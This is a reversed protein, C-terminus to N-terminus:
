GPTLVGVVAATMLSALTGSVITKTGLSVIESRREPVMAAMGGIMIGLSAFNAAIYDRRSEYKRDRAWNMRTLSYAAHVHLAFAAILGGRMLWLLVTRPLFPTGLTRLWEGYHNIDEAGFYIKLNGAMHALVYGMWVIGTIAMGRGGTRDFWGVTAFDRNLDKGGNENGREFGPGTTSDASRTGAIGILGRWRALSLGGFSGNM